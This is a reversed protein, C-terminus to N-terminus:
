GWFLLQSVVENKNRWCHGSFRLRREKITESIPPKDGYLAENTVHDSWSVNLAARLLRRYCGDIGM